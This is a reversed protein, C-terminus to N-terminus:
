LKIVISFIGVPKRELCVNLIEVRDYEIGEIYVECKNEFDCLLKTIKSEMDQKEKRIDKIDM